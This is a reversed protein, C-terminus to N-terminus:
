IAHNSYSVYTTKTSLAAHLHFPRIISSTCTSFFYLVYQHLDFLPFCTLHACLILHFLDLLFLLSLKFSHLPFSSFFCLPFLLQSCIKNSITVYSHWMWLGGSNHPSKTLGMVDQTGELMEHFIDINKCCGCAELQAITIGQHKWVVRKKWKHKAM